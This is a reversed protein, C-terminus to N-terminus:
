QHRRSLTEWLDKEVSPFFVCPDFDLHGDSLSMVEVSGVNIKKAPM